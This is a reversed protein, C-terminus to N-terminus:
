VRRDRLAAPRSVVRLGIAKYIIDSQPIFGATYVTYVIYVIYVLEVKHGVFVWLEHKETSAAM